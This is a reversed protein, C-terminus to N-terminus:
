LILEIWATKYTRFIQWLKFIYKSMIKGLSITLILSSVRFNFVIPWYSTLCMIVNGIFCFRDSWFDQCVNYSTACSTRESERRYYNYNEKEVKLVAIIRNIWPESSCFVYNNTWGLFVANESGYINEQLHRYVVGVALSSKHIEITTNKSKVNEIAMICSFIHYIM